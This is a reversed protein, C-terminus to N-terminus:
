LIYSLLAIPHSGGAQWVYMSTHTPTDRYLLTGHPPRATCYPGMDPSSRPQPTPLERYPEICWPYQDCPVGWGLSCVSVCSRFKVLPRHVYQNNTSMNLSFVPLEHKSIYVYYKYASLIGTIQAWEVTSWVLTRRLWKLKTSAKNTMCSQSRSRKPQWSSAM